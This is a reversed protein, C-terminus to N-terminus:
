DKILSNIGYLSSGANLNKQLSSVNRANSIAPGNEPFTATQDRTGAPSLVAPASPLFCICSRTGVGPAM